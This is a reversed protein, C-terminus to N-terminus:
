KRRKEKGNLEGKKVSKTNFQIFVKSILAAHNCGRNVHVHVIAKFKRM